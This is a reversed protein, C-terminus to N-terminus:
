QAFHSILMEAPNEVSRQELKQTNKLEYIIENQGPEAEVSSKGRAWVNKVKLKTLGEVSGLTSM